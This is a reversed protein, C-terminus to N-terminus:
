SNSYPKFPEYEPSVQKKKPMGPYPTGEVHPGPLKLAFLDSSWAQLSSPPDCM